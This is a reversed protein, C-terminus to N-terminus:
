SKNALACQVNREMKVKKAINISKICRWRKGSKSVVLRMQDQAHHTRCHYCYLTNSM